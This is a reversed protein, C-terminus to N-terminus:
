FGGLASQSVAAVEVLWAVNVTVRLLGPYCLIWQTEKKKKGGESGSGKPEWTHSGTFSSDKLDRKTVRKKALCATISSNSLPDPLNTTVRRPLWWLSPNKSLKESANQPSYKASGSSSWLRYPATIVKILNSYAAPLFCFLVFGSIGPFSKTCTSISLLSNYRFAEHAFLVPFFNGQIRKPKVNLM